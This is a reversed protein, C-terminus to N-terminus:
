PNDADRGHATCEAQWEAQTKRILDLVARLDNAGRSLHIVGDGPSMSTALAAYDSFHQVAPRDFIGPEDWLRRFCEQRQKAHRLRVKAQRTTAAGARDGMTERLGAIADFDSWADEQVARDFWIDLTRSADDAHGLRFQREAINGLQPGTQRQTTGKLMAVADRLIQQAEANGSCDALEQMTAVVQRLGDDKKVSGGAKIVQMFAACAENTAGMRLYSRAVSRWNECRAEGSGAATNVSDAATKATLLARSSDGLVAQAEAIALLAEVEGKDGPSSKVADMARSLSLAAGTANGMGAQLIAGRAIERAREAGTLTNASDLALAVCSVVGSVCGTQDKPEVPSPSWWHRQAKKKSESATSQTAKAAPPLANVRMVYSVERAADGTKGFMEACRRYAGAQRGTGGLREACLLMAPLNARSEAHDFFSSLALVRDGDPSAEKLFAIARDYEADPLSKALEDAERQTRKEEPILCFVAMATDFKRAKISADVLTKVDRVYRDDYRHTVQRCCELADDLDSKQVLAVALDSWVADAPWGREGPPQRVVGVRSIALGFASKPDGKQLRWKLEAVFVDRYWRHQNIDYYTKSRWRNMDGADLYALAVDEMVLEPWPDMVGSGIQRLENLAAEKDGQKLWARAIALCGPKNWPEMSPAIENRAKV